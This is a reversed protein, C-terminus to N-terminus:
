QVKFEVTDSWISFGDGKITLVRWYILTGVPVDMIFQYRSNVTTASVLFSSGFGQDTSAQVVYGIAGPVDEWELVPRLDDVMSERIPSTLRPSPITADLQSIRPRDSVISNRPTTFSLIESWSSTENDTDVARVRWHYTTNLALPTSMSYTPNVFVHVNANVVTSAFTPSVSVQIQYHDFTTNRPIAVQGL